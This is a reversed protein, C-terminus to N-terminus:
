SLQGITVFIPRYRTSSPRKRPVMSKSCRRRSSWVKPLDVEYVTTGTPWPLRYGRVDLGAALLVVQRIGAAGAAAFFEDFYRTRAGMGRSFMDVDPEEAVAPDNLLESFVPAQAATAAVFHQAYDDRALPAHKRAEIARMTAVALATAGVSTVIDWSDGASRPV